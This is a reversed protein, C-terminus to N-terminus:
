FTALVDDEEPDEISHSWDFHRDGLMRQVQRWNRRIHQHRGKDVTHRAMIDTITVSANRQGIRHIRDEAQLNEGPLWARDLFIVESATQLNLGTGGAGITGAFVDIEGSLFGKEIQTRTTARTGGTYKGYEVDGMATIQNCLLDIIRSFQSFVIVQEGAEKRERILDLCADIKSSPCSLIIQGDEDFDPTALAIQQLRILRAIVVSAVLPRDEQEGIWAIMDKEMQDYVRRQKASLDVWVNRYQKPPLETLVDEKRRRVVFPKLRTQLEPLTLSNPGVVKTYTTGGAYSEEVEVYRRRYKWYSTWTQRDLFNLIAWLQDVARNAPTGTLATRYTAKLARVHISTKSKRNSIRHAEDVILHLFDRHAVHEWVQPLKLGEYHIVFVDATQGVLANIWPQRTRSNTPDLVALRVHPLNNAYFEGWTYLLAKPCVILTPKGASSPVARLRRDRDGAMFTKGLGPQHAFLAGAQLEVHNVDALQFPRLGLPNEASM